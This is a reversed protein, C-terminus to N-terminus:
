GFIQSLIFVSDVKGLQENHQEFYRLLGQLLENRISKSPLPTAAGDSLLLHLYFSADRSLFNPYEFYERVFCSDEISFFCTRESFNDQPLFGMERTLGVMFRLHVDTLITEEADLELVSKEVFDYLRSDTQFERLLKYLLENYFILLSRRVMDFPIRQYPIALSIEKLFQINKNKDDFNIDVISLGEFLANVSRGKKSYAGKVIFSQVGAFRTFIQVIVSTEAYKTKHLIIGRTSINM